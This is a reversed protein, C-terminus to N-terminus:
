LGDNKIFIDGEALQDWTIADTFQNAILDVTGPHWLAYPYNQRPLIPIGVCNEVFGSCDIGTYDHWKISFEITNDINGAKVGAALKNNFIDETERLSWAYVEGTYQGTAFIVSGDPNKKIPEGAPFFPYQLDNDAEIGDANTTRANAETCIWSYDRYNVANNIITNGCDCLGRTSNGIFFVFFLLFSLYGKKNVLV